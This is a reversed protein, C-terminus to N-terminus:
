SEDTNEENEKLYYAVDSRLLMQTQSSEFHTRVVKGLEMDKVMRILTPLDANQIEYAKVCLVGLKDPLIKKVTLDEDFTTKDITM